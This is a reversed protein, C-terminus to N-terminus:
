KLVESYVPITETKFHDEYIIREVTLLIIDPYKKLVEHTLPHTLKIDRTIAYNM